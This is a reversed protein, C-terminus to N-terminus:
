GGEDRGGEGDRSHRVPQFPSPNKLGLQRAAGIDDHVHIVGKPSMSGPPPGVTVPSPGARDRDEGWWASGCFCSANLVPPSHKPVTIGPWAM